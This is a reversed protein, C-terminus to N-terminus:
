HSDRDERVARTAFGPPAPPMKGLIEDLQSLSEKLRTKWALEELHMRVAESVDIGRDELYKKIGRRVRVSIVESM